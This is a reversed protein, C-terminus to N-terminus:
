RVRRRASRLAEPEWTSNADSFAVIQAGSRAVAQDQARIKGGRPLELM